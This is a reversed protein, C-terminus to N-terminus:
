LGLNTDAFDETVSCPWDVQRVIDKVRDVLDPDDSHGKRPGDVILVLEQPKWQRIREFVQATLDPRNFAILVVPFQPGKDM